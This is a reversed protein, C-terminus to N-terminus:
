FRWIATLAWRDGAVERGFLDRATADTAFRALDLEVSGYSATLTANWSTYGHDIVDTLDYYGVGAAVGFWRWIPQRVALEYTFVNGRRGLGYRTARIVDPSWGVTAFMRDQYALTGSLESYDYDVHVSAQPYAYRVFSVRTGWDPTPAWGWGAYANLELNGLYSSDLSSAWVGAFWGSDSQYHADGQLAADGGTQSLGRYVYDTTAVLSGGFGSDATACRGGGLLGAICAGAVAITHHLPGPM